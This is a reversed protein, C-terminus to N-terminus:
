ILKNRDLQIAIQNETERLDTERKIYKPSKSVRAIPKINRTITPFDRELEGTKFNLYRETTTFTSHGMDKQLIAPNTGIFVKRVAYTHRLSHFHKREPLGAKRIVKKFKKSLHGGKSKNVLEGSNYWALLEDFIQTLSNGLYDELIITRADKGKSENLIEMWNGNRTSIFPERLRCGTERYFYFVRGYFGDIGVEDWIKQMEYDTIYVPKTKKVPLEQIEPVRDLVNRKWYYRLLARLTRLHINASTNSLGVEDVLYDTFKDCKSITISKLPIRSGFCNVMHFLGNQNIELTRPSLRAKKRRLMWEEYAEKFTFRKVKTYGEDNMWPFDYELGNIIDQKKRLVKLARDRAVVKSETYLPIAREEEKYNAVWRVRGWYKGHRDKRIPLDTKKM